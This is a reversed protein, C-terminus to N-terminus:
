VKSMEAMHLVHRNYFAIIVFMGIRVYTAHSLLLKVKTCIHVDKYFRCLSNVRVRGTLNAFTSM